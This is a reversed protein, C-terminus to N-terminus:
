RRRYVAASGFLVLLSLLTTGLCEDPENDVTVTVSDTDEVVGSVMGDARVTSQQDEAELTTNWSYQFPASTDEAKFVGNIYWRVSTCNSDATCTVTGSVTSGNTPNTITVYYDPVNDVTVTVTDDDAFVGSVYGDVRITHSGETEGITNWSWSFPDTTDTYKLSGDIYFRVEDINGTTETTINVTGYVTAGNSPNTITVSDPPPTDDRKTLCPTEPDGMLNREYYCWRYTTNSGASGAMYYRSRDRLDGLKEYGDSWCARIEMECFEGSYQCANLTSFWGYNDNYIAGIAGCDDKVMQESLCDSATFEGSICAVSTTWPFFTNTFTSCDSTSWNVTGGVEYNIHYLTTNGHGIHTVVIPGAAWASRWDAQSINGSEEFLYDITYGGPIWDDCNYALCRSDPSNGSQVRSQHFCVRTPKAMQEYAIVKNVFALAQTTNDVPARGVAVEAYWDQEGPEGYRSDGDNNWSGDLHGYYMDAAMDTDTYGGTSVYFGRYPVVGTDGGLLVYKTGNNTYKDIIFNRIKMQNDTGSYNAYIWTTTYVSAGNVFKAKWTALTQFTSELTSSTVIIYEETALPTGGDGYTSTMEPNDVIGAVAAGDSALGRYFKNKLGKGFQIEVTLREYFHVTGSKPQYQVPFLLVQLIDYGKFSEVGVVEFLTKPYLGNSNYTAENKGVKVPTDSFTCPPQGWPLDYGKMVIPKGHKVKIDKVEAGQPLLITAARYPVLPEGPVEYIQTGEILYTGCGDCLSDVMVPTFTYDVGFNDNKSFATPISLCLMAVLALMTVKRGKM